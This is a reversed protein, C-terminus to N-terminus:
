KRMLALHLAGIPVAVERLTALRIKPGPKMAEMIKRKLEHKVGMRLPEGILSLGGGLIIIEPNLLHM